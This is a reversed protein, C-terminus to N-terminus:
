LRGVSLEDIRPWRWRWPSIYLAGTWAGVISFFIFVILFSIQQYSFSVWWTKVKVTLEKAVRKICCDFVCCINSLAVHVLGQSIVSLARVVFFVIISLNGSCGSSFPPFGEARWKQCGLLLFRYIFKFINPRKNFDQLITPFNFFFLPFIGKIFVTWFTGNKCVASSLLPRSSTM